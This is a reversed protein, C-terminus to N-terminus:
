SYEMRHLMNLVASRKLINRFKGKNKECHMNGHKQEGGGAVGGGAM